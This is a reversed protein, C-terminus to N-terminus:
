IAATSTWSISKPIEPTVTRQFLLRPGDPSIVPTSDNASGDSVLTQNSGDVDMIFVQQSGGNRDSQFIVKTGDPSWSSNLDLNVNNTLNTQSSGDANMSYVEFDGDRDTHFIM